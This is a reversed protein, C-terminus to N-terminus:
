LVMEVIKKAHLLTTDFIPYDCDSKIILHPIETCGLIVGEAGEDILRKMIQLYELKSQEKVIGFVLEEFIIKHITQIDNSKPIFVKLGYKETLRDKYFDEEMTFKTGILGVNNINQKKIEEATADVIHVLPISISRCVDPAMKHATNACLALLEAGCMQLSQAAQVLMDTVAQWNNEHQFQQFKEFDISYIICECSHHGGLKKNITQNLIRYYEASSEWSMGGILRVRKM